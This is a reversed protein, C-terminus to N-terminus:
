DRGLGAPAPTPRPKGEQNRDAMAVVEKTQRTSGDETPEQSRLAELGVKALMGQPLMEPPLTPVEAEWLQESLCEM